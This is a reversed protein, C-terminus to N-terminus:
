IIALLARDFKERHIVTSTHGYLRLSVLAQLDMPLWMVLDFFRKQPATIGSSMVELYGDCMAVIMAFTFAPFTSVSNQLFCARVASDFPVMLGLLWALEFCGDSAMASHIEHLIPPTMEAIQDPTALAHLKRALIVSPDGRRILNLIKVSPLWEAVLEEDPVCMGILKLSQGHVFLLDIDFQDTPQAFEEVLQQALPSMRERMISERMIKDQLLFRMCRPPNIVMLIRRLGVTRSREDMAIIQHYATLAAVDDDLWMTIVRYCHLQHADLELAAVFHRDACVMTYFGMVSVTNISTVNRIKLAHYAAVKKELPVKASAIHPWNNIWFWNSVADLTGEAVLQHVREM